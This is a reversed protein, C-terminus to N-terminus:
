ERSTAGPVGGGKYRGSGTRELRVDGENDEVTTRLVEEDADFEVAGEGYANTGGDDSPGGDGVDVSDDSVPNSRTAPPTAAALSTSFGLAILSRPPIDVNSGAEWGQFGVVFSTSDPMGEDGSRRNGSNSISEEPHTNMRRVQTWYQYKPVLDVKSDAKRGQFGEIFSARDPMGEDGSRRNGFNGFSEGPYALGKGDQTWYQHEPVLSNSLDWSESVNLSVGAEMLRAFIRVCIGDDM